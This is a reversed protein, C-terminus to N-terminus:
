LGIIRKSDLHLITKKKDVRDQVLIDPQMAVMVDARYDNEKHQFMPLEKINHNTLNKYAWQINGNLWSVKIKM